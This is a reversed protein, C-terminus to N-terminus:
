RAAFSATSVERFDATMPRRRLVRSKRRMGATDILKIHNGNWDWELSIADRTIGPEPGTILRQEGVLTNILTSKGVNPLGVIGCKFGM